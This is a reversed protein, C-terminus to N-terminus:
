HRSATGPPRGTLPRGSATLREPRQGHADGRDHRRGRRDTRHVSTRRCARREVPPSRFCRRRCLGRHDLVPASRRHVPQRCLPLTGPEKEAEEILSAFAAVYERAKGEKVTVRAVIAVPSLSGGRPLGPKVTASRRNVAPESPPRVSGPWTPMYMPDPRTM